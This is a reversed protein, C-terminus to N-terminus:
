GKEGVLAKGVRVGLGEVDVELRFEALSGLCLVWLLQVVLCVRELSVSRVESVGM